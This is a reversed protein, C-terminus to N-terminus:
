PLLVVLGHLMPLDPPEETVPRHRWFIMIPEKKFYTAFEPFFTALKKSGDISQQPELEIVNYDHAPIMIQELERPAHYGAFADLHIGLIGHAWPLSGKYISIRRDSTNTLRMHLVGERAVVELSIPPTKSDAWAVSCALAAVFFILRFFSM